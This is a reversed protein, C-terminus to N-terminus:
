ADLSRRAGEDEIQEIARVLARKVQGFMRADTTGFLCVTRGRYVGWLEHVRGPRVWVCAAFAMSSAVGLILTTALGVTAVPPMSTADLIPWGITAAVAAAGAIGASGARIQSRGPAGSGAPRHALYLRRIDRIMFYRHHPCRAEFVEHTIHACPGEYFVTM